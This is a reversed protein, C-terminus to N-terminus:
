PQRILRDLAAAVDRIKVSGANSQQQLSRLVSMKLDKNVVAARAPAAKAGMVRSMAPQLTKGQARQYANLGMLKPMIPEEIHRMTLLRIGRGCADRCAMKNEVDKWMGAGITASNAPFASVIGGFLRNGAANGFCRLALRPRFTAVNLDRGPKASLVRASWDM